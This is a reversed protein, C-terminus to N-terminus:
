EGSWRFDEEGTFKSAATFARIGYMLEPMVTVAQTVAQWPAATATRPGAAAREPTRQVGSHSPYPWVRNSEYM